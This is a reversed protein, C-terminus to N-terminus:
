LRVIEATMSELEIIAVSHFSARYLAGPNVVLTPGHREIKAVHTHGHCVLDYRGCNITDRLRTLDDGHLWAINRGSLQLEGFRRHSQLGVGRGNAPKEYDSPDVNGLVYHTPRPAFLPLIESTGVDGCHLIAQVELADLMQLAAQTNPVHGHTDSVIGLRTIAPASDHM